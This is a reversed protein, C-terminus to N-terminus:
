LKWQEGIEKVLLHLIGQTKMRSGDVILDAVERYYPDREVYLERLRNLPNPVKLLPRNKDPAHAGM